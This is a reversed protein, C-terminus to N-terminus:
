MMRRISQLHHRWHWGPPSFKALQYLADIGQRPMRERLANAVAREWRKIMTAKLAAKDRIHSPAEDWMLQGAKARIIEFDPYRHYLHWSQWQQNPRKVRLMTTPEGPLHQWSGRQAIRGFLVLDHGTAFETPFCGSALVAQTRFLTCSGVGAGHKLFWSFPCESLEALNDRAFAKGHQNIRRRDTSAAVANLESTLATTGRALFDHPWQDDSDLFAVYAMGESFEALALNRAAAAGQNATSVVFPNLSPHAAKWAQAIEATDDTSGDDVIVVCQPPKTQQAISALCDALTKARNYAPVVVLTSCNPSNM